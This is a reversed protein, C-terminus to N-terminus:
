VAGELRRIASYAPRWAIVLMVFCHGSHVAVQREANLSATQGARMATRILYEKRTVIPSKLDSHARFQLPPHHRSVRKERCRMGASMEHTCRSFLTSLMAHMEESLQM